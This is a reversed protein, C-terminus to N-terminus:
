EEARVAEVQRALSALDTVLEAADDFGDLTEALLGDLEDEDVEGARLQEAIEDCQLGLNGVRATVHTSEQALSGAVSELEAAVEEHDNSSAVPSDKESRSDTM